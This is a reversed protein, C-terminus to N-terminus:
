TSTLLSQKAIVQKLKHKDWPLLNRFGKGKSWTRLKAWNEVTKKIMQHDRCLEKSMELTSMGKWLLKTIKQKKAFTLANGKGM